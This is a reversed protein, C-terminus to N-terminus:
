RRCYKSLPCRCPILAAGWAASGCGPVARLQHSLPCPVLPTCLAVSHPPQKTGLDTHPWRLRTLLLQPLFCTQPHELTALSGGAVDLGLSSQAPGGWLWAQDEGPCGGQLIPSM